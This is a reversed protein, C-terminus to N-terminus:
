KSDTHTETESKTFRWLWVGVVVTVIMAAIYIVGGGSIFWDFVVGLKPIVLVVEGAIQDVSIPLIDASPNSDGKTIFMGEESGYNVIRHTIPAKSDTEVYTVIDGLSYDNTKKVVIMDGQNITGNMSGTTVTLYAYGLFMPVSSKKIYKQILLSGLPVVILLLIVGLVCWLVIKKPAVKNTM